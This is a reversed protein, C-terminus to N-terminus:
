VNNKQFERINEAIKEILRTRAEISAWAIHPTLILRDPFLVKLISSESNMPEKEYVDLGAGAIIELNIAEILDQENIIGGRGANVIFAAPKMMKLKALTILNRTHDNLPAHISVIDSTFLLDELEVRRYDNNNNKGSTSYYVIQMGFEEMISAVRKGITGLGIIGLQKNKLEYMTPGLHTFMDSQTYAGTKVYRDFYNLRNVLNLIMGVTIQAVSETSYNEVNKVEIGKLQAYAVDINNIGTAAICILKLQPCQNMIDKDIIVKNTIIIEADKIREIRENPLTLNYETYEGFERFISLNPVNGVTKADLFVIKM